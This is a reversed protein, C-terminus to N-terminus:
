LMANNILFFLGSAPDSVASFYVKLRKILVKEAIVILRMIQEIDPWRVFEIMTARTHSAILYTLPPNWKFEEIEQQTKEIKIITV